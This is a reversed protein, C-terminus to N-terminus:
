KQQRQPKPSTSTPSSIADFKPSQLCDPRKRSAPTHKQALLFDRNYTKLADTSVAISKEEQSRSTQSSINTKKFSATSVGVSRKQSLIDTQEFQVSIDTKKISATQSNTDASVPCSSGLYPTLGCMETTSTQCIADKKEM